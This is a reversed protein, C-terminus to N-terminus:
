APKNDHSGDEELTLDYVAELLKLGHERNTAYTGEMRKEIADASGLESEAPYHYNLEIRCSHDYVIKLNLQRTDLDITRVLSVAGMKGHASLQDADALNLLSALPEPCGEVSYHFNEGFAQIPTHPLTQLIHRAAAEIRTLVDDSDKLPMFAVRENSVVIQIDGARFIPPAGGLVPFRIEIEPQKFVQEALWQPSLIATNWRGIIVLSWQSLDEKMSGESASNSNFAM